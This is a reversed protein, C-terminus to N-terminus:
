GAIALLYDPRASGARVQLPHLRSRRRRPVCVVGIHLSRKRSLRPNSDARTSAEPRTQPESETEWGATTLLIPGGARPGETRRRTIDSLNRLPNIAIRTSTSTRWPARTAASRRGGPSEDPRRSKFEPGRTRNSRTEASRDVLGNAGRFPVSAPTEAKVTASGPNSTVAYAPARIYGTKVRANDPTATACVAREERHTGAAGRLDAAERERASLGSWPRVMAAISIRWSRGSATSM